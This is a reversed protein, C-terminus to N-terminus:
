EAGDGSRGGGVGASHIDRSSVVTARVTHGREAAHVGPPAQRPTYGGCYHRHQQVQSYEEQLWEDLHMEM